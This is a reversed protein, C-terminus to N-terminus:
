SLLPRPSPGLWGAIDAVVAPDVHQAPASEAPASPGSGRFFFHNDPPYVRITVDPRGALGARWRALDDAETAHYDRCGQLILMPKGLAAAVTVPQYGRLDLWYPAPVGFPLGSAPTSPSLGLSDVLRSGTVAM